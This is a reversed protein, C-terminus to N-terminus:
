CREIHLYSQTRSVLTTAALRRRKSVCLRGDPREVVPSGRREGVVRRDDPLKASRAIQRKRVPDM